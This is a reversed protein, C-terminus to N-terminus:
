INSPGANHYAPLVTFSSIDDTNDAIHFYKADARTAPRNDQNKKYENPKDDSIKRERSVGHLIAIEEDIHINNYKIKSTEAKPLKFGKDCNM